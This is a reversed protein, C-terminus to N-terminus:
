PHAIIKGCKPCHIHRSSNESNYGSIKADKKPLVYGCKPCCYSNKM